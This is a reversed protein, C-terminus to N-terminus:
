KLGQGELLLTDIRDASLGMSEILELLKYMDVNVGANSGYLLWSERQANSGCHRVIEELHEMTM